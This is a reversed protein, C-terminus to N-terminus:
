KIDIDHNIDRLLISVFREAEIDGLREILAEMGTKMLVTETM